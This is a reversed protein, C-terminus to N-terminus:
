WRARLGRALRARRGIGMRAMVHGRHGIVVHFAHLGACPGDTQITLLYRRCAIAVFIALDPFSPGAEGRLGAPRLRGHPREPVARSSWGLARPETQGSRQRRARCNGAHSQAIHAARLRDDRHNHFSGCIDSVLFAPASDLQSYSPPASGQTCGDVFKHVACTIRRRYRAFRHQRVEGFRTMVAYSRGQRRTQGPKRARKLLKLKLM